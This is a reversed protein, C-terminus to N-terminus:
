YIKNKDFPRSMKRKPKSIKFSALTGSDKKKKMLFEMDGLVKFLFKWNLYDFGKEADLIQAIQKENHQQIYEIVDLVISM